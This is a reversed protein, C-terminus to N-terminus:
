TSLPIAGANLPKNVGFDTTASAAPFPRTVRILYTGADPTLAGATPNVFMLAVTNTASVRASACATKKTNAPPSVSVMDGVAVGTVTITQEAATAAAVEAATFSVAIVAEGRVLSEAVINPGPNAM